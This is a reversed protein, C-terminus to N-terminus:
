RFVVSGFTESFFIDGGHKRKQQSMLVVHAVSFDEEIEIGHKNRISHGYPCHFRCGCNFCVTINGSLDVPNLKKKNTSHTKNKYGQRRGAHNIKERIILIRIMNIHPVAMMYELLTWKTIKQM